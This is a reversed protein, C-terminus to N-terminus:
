RGEQPTSFTSVVTAWAHLITELKNSLEQTIVTYRGPRRTVSRKVACLSATRAKYGHGCVTFGGGEDSDSTEKNVRAGMVPGTTKETKRGASASARALNGSSARPSAACLTPRPLGARPQEQTLHAAGTADLFICNNPTQWLKPKKPKARM